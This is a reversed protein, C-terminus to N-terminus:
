RCERGGARARLANATVLISSGSMALAAILPTAWGLIAIPVAVANYIVALGLNERMVRKARRSVELATAVPALRDGLFVADAAAQTLHVATVPSLSVDAAALAPADNLGDGVMAVKRGTRRLEAIRSIKDAPTMGARYAGVGLARAVWEVAPERDGSLIEIDYGRAKLKAIVVAADSRLQQRVTFVYLEAGYAFTIVSAEPATNEPTVADVDAGCFSSKGLRVPVGDVVARVGQGPEEVAGDISMKAQAACAVAAALPHRSLLALRGALALIDPPIDDANTLTPEPLTLTGTKDFLVVDTDALREIADGANLLPYISKPAHGMWYAFAMEGSVIFAVPRTFLGLLLAAGGVVEIVGAFWFLTFMAPGPKPPAYPPFGFLKQTGHEFFIVAAVICAIRLVRPAWVTELEQMLEQTTM